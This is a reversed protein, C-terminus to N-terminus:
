FKENEEPPKALSLFLVWIYVACQALLFVPLPGALGEWVVSHPTLSRACALGKGEQGACSINYM